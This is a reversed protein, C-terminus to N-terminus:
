AGGLACSIGHSNLTNHPPHVPCTSPTPPCPLPTSLARQAVRVDRARQRGRLRAAPGPGWWAGAGGAGGLGVGRPAGRLLGGPPPRPAGRLDPLGGLLRWRGTGVALAELESPIEPPLNRSHRQGFTPKRACITHHSLCGGRSVRSAGLKVSRNQFLVVFRHGRKM